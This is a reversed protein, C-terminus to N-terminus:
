AVEAASRRIERRWLRARDFAGFRYKYREAGRLFDFWRAGRRSSEEMAAAIALAGPSRQALAPTFGGLYYRACDRDAIAFAVSALQGGIRVGVGILSESTALRRCAARLFERRAGDIVGPQDRAAWRAHHLAALVDVLEDPSLQVHDIGLERTARRRQYEIERRLNRALPELPARADLAVAPCPEQAVVREQGPIELALLPSGERLEGLELRDWALMRLTDAIARVVDGARSALLLDQYDSVGAGILSLVDRSGDRWRFLPVLAHLRARKWVAIAEVQGQLLHECWPLCWEPRQFATADRAADWLEAWAAELAYLGAQDLVEVRVGSAARMRSRVLGHYTDLYRAVMTTHSCRAEAAARCRARSVRDVDRLARVLEADDCALRGVDGDEVLDVLAGRRFGVVPTGCALAEMAVLSSTEDVTSPVVLCRARAILSVKEDGTVPGIFRHPARLRPLVQERYYSEHEPFGFVKGAIVLPIGAASAADLAVHQAKEPCVRGLVLAYDEHAPAPRFRDLDVGNEIDQLLRADAPATLRQSRSVCHLWADPRTPRLAERPYWDTPLHLTALVPPGSAPLYAHFDVGHVHVVDVHERALVDRLAARCAAHARIWASRTLYEPAGSLAVLEGAVRSGHCAIVISRHGAAVLAADIMALIQEAGGVADIGVPALPYAVSLVTLM